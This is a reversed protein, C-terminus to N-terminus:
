VLKKFTFLNDRRKVVYRNETVDEGTKTYVLVTAVEDDVMVKETAIAYIQAVAKEKEDLFNRLHDEFPLLGEDWTVPRAMEINTGENNTAGEAKVEVTAKGIRKKPDIVDLEYIKVGGEESVLQWQDPEPVKWGRERYSQALKIKNM